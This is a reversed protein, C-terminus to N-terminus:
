FKVMESEPQVKNAKEMETNEKRYIDRAKFISQISLFLLLLTLSAQIIVSPFIINFFVGAVSGILVVPLMVNTVSYEICTADKSPHRANVTLVFRSISGILITLGSVAIAKKTQLKYFVMLLPVIIGGGGIGSMVALAMLITLVVTGVIEIPQLKFLPKHNCVNGTM